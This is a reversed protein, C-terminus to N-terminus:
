KTERIAPQSLISLKREDSCGHVDGIVILRRQDERAPVLDQDLTKVQIMDLFEPRM